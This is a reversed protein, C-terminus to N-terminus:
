WRFSSRAQYIEDQVLITWTVWLLISKKESYAPSEAFQADELVKHCEFNVEVNPSSRKHEEVQESVAWTDTGKSTKWSSVKM